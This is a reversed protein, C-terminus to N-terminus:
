KFLRGVTYLYYEGCVVDYHYVKNLPLDTQDIRDLGWPPYDQDNQVTIMQDQLSCVLFSTASLALHSHTHHAM